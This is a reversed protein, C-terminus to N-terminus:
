RSKKWGQEAYYNKVVSTVHDSIQRERLDGNIHPAEKFYFEYDCKACRVKPCSNMVEPCGRCAFTRAYTISFVFGCNPCTFKRLSDVTNKSFGHARMSQYYTDMRM